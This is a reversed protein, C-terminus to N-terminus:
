EEDRTGFPNYSMIENLKKEEEKTLPKISESKEILKRKQEILKLQLAGRDIDAQLKSNARAEKVADHAWETAENVGGFFSAITSFINLAM